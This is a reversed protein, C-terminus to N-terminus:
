KSEKRIVFFRTLIMVLFVLGMGVLATIAVLNAEKTGEARRASIIGMVAWLFVLSFFLDNKKVLIIINIVTAVIVMGSALYAAPWDMNVWHVYNILVALNALTAVVVWGLYLSFPIVTIIYQPEFRKFGVTVRRYINFLLLLLLTMLIMSFPIAKYHWSFIWGINILCSIFYLILIAPAPFDGLKFFTVVFAYVIFALNFLYVIGWISFTYGAPTFYTPYMASIQGTFVGNIQGTLSLYNVYIMAFFALATLIMWFKKM